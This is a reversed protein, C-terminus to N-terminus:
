KKPKWHRYGYTGFYKREAKVRLRVAETKNTCYVHLVKEGEFRMVALWKKRTKVWHVGRRGSSHKGKPPTNRSNQSNNVERLNKIDNDLKNGNIHDVMDPEYGHHMFFVIRHAFCSKRKYQVMIYGKPTLWGAPGGRKRGPVHESRYYLVGDRVVFREKLEKITATKLM